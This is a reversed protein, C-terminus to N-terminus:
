GGGTGAWNIYWFGNKKIFAYHDPGIVPNKCAYFQGYQGDMATKHVNTTFASIFHGKLFLNSRVLREPTSHCLLYTGLFVVVIIVCPITIKKIYKLLSGGRM